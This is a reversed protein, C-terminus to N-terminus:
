SFLKKGSDLKFGSDKYFLIQKSLGQIKQLPDILIKILLYLFLFIYLFFFSFIFFFNVTPGRILMNKLTFKFILSSFVYSCYM